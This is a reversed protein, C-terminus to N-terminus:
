YNTAHQVVELFLCFYNVTYHAAELFSTHEILLVTNMITPSKHLALRDSKNQQPMCSRPIKAHQCTQIPSRFGTVKVTIVDNGYASCTFVATASM